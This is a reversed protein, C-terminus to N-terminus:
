SEVVFDAPASEARVRAGNPLDNGEVKERIREPTLGYHRWRAELRRRLAEVPVEIRVSVDFLARLDSWPPLRLLLYNGEVIVCRVATGVIRAGARSLELDRDFVPVAVQEQAGGLRQLLHRLGAVDFTEPAGKVARLGRADLVADDYHFGDMPVVCAAGPQAANLQHALAEALTSKGAGPAGVLAVLIRADLARRALIAALESLAIPREGVEPDAVEHAQPCEIDSPM